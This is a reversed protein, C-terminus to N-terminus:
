CDDDRLGPDEPPRLRMEPCQDPRLRYDTEEDVRRRCVAQDDDTRWRLKEAAAIFDVREFNQQPQYLTIWDPIFIPESLPVNWDLPLGLVGEIPLPDIYAYRHFAEAPPLVPGVLSTYWMDLKVVQSLDGETLLFPDYLEWFATQPRVPLSLGVYYKDLTINEDRPVDDGVTLPRVGVPLIVPGRPIDLLPTEIADLHIAEALDEERHYSLPPLPELVPRPLPLSLETFWPIRKPLLAEDPLPEPDFRHQETIPREVPLTPISLSTYWKDVSITEEGTFVPLTDTFITLPALDVRPLLRMTPNDFKDITVSEGFDGETLLFGMQPEVFPDIPFIPLSFTTYWKDLTVSEDFDNERKTDMRPLPRLSSEPSRPVFMSDYRNERPLKEEPTGIINKDEESGYLARIFPGVFITDQSRPLWKDVSTQEDGFFEPPSAEHPILSTHIEARWPNQNTWSKWKDIQPTEGVGVPEQIPETKSQYLVTEEFTVTVNSSVVQPILESLLIVHSEMPIHSAHVADEVIVLDTSRGEFFDPVAPPDEEARAMHFPRHAAGLRPSALFLDPYQQQWKDLQPAEPDLEERAMELPIVSVHIPPMLWPNQNTWPQWKDLQPSEPDLEERAMEFPIHAASLRPHDLVVVDPYVPEWGPVFM